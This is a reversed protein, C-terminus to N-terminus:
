IPNDGILTEDVRVKDFYVSTTNSSSQGFVIQNADTVATGGSTQTAFAGGSTPRVGDTSFAVEGVANTGTGKTYKVWVHYTTNISITNSTISETGGGARIAFAGTGTVRVRVCEGSSHRFQFATWSGGSPLSSFRILFYAYVTSQDTFTPSTTNVTTASPNLYLAESEQLNLALTSSNEDPSNTETWTPVDYGPVGTNEFNEELLYSTSGEPIGTGALFSRLKQAQVSFSVLIFIFTFIKKM